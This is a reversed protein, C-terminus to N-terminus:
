KDGQPYLKPRVRGALIFGTPVTVYRTVVLYLGWKNKAKMQEVSGNCYYPCYAPLFTFRVASRCVCLAKSNDLIHTRTRASGITVDCQPILMPQALLSFLLRRWRCFVLEGSVTHELSDRCTARIEATKGGRKYVPHKRQTGKVWRGEKEVREGISEEGKEMKLKLGSSYSSVKEYGFVSAALNNGLTAGSNGYHSQTNHTHM